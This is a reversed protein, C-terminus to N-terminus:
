RETIKWLFFDADPRIGATTYARLGEMRTSWEDCVDAFAEKGAAREDVPLRRWAPDVKYFSYAVYQGVPLDEIREYGPQDSV